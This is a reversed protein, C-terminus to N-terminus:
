AFATCEYVNAWCSVLSGEANDLEMVSSMGDRCPLVSM